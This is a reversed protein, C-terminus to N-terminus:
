RRGGETEKMLDVATKGNRGKVTTDCGAEILYHAIPLTEKNLVAWMLPTFGYSDRQNMNAGYEVLLKVKELSKSHVATHLLSDGYRDCIDPNAGNKLLLEAIELKEFEMAYMLPTYYEVCSIKNINRGKKILSVIKETDDEAIAWLYESPYPYYNIQIMAVDGKKLDIKEEYENYSEITVGYKGHRRFNYIPTTEEVEEKDIYIGKSAGQEPFNKTAKVFISMFNVFGKQKRHSYASLGFDNWKCIRFFKNDEEFGNFDPKGLIKILDSLKFRVPLHQGKLYIEGNRTINIGENVIEQLVQDSKKTIIEAYLDVIPKYDKQWITEGVQYKFLSASVASNYFTKKGNEFAIQKALPMEHRMCVCTVLPATMTKQDYKLGILRHTGKQDTVLFDSNKIKERLFNKNNTPLTIPKRYFQLFKNM